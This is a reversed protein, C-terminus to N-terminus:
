KKDTEDIVVVLSQMVPLEDYVFKAHSTANRVCMHSRPITGLSNSYEIERERPKAVPIGHIYAGQTFRSAYPAYGAITSTGNKVYYMKAKKMQVMYFGLPTEQSYPPRRVGTTAPNVSRVVWEKPNRKELVAINQNHRDIFAIKKFDPSGEIVKVYKKPVLWEGDKPDGTFSTVRYFKGTTEEQLRGLWGDRAYRQPKVSDTLEYLPIGQFREVGYNDRIRKYENRSFEKVLPAEGNANRYNQFVVWPKQSFAFAKQLRAIHEKMIDYCVRRPKKNYEYTDDLAYREFTLEKTISIEEATPLSGAPHVVKQDETAVTPRDEPKCVPITQATANTSFTYCALGLLALNAVTTRVFKM